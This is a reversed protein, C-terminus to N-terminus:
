EPLLTQPRRAIKDHEQFTVQTLGKVERLRLKDVQVHSTKGLLIELAEGTRLSQICPSIRVKRGQSESPTWLEFSKGLFDLCSHCLFFFLCGALNPSELSATLFPVILLIGM